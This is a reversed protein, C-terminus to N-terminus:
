TLRKMLVIFLTIVSSEILSVTARYNFTYRSYIVRLKLIDQTAYHVKFIFHTENTQEPAHRRLLLHLVQM